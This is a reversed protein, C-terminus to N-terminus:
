LREFWPLREIPVNITITKGGRWVKGTDDRWKGKPLRVDRQDASTVVPAVLYKDGLMYQDVIGELGQGPFSYDMARVMPEGTKAMRRTESLIYDGLQSHWAAYRRCIDLHHKDLIRWPAVSFQMMPMMSHIQCSRVILKQDFKDPDIGYFTTFSGGGIMDPCTYGYGQLGAAIMGPVLQRVGLWSYDKDGLRQVLPANGELWCARMENYSFDSGLQAWLQTQAVDYSKGDYVDVEDESYYCQDGADFKFGDIGYRQQLDAFEHKLYARAEPNSLDYVHSYGNWWAVVAPEDTGKRKLFYGKKALDRGKKSDPSVFPCVWLMVKFGMDHLSDVMAKPNPFQEARFEWVGYDQQWNDDIMLVGTPFGNDVIGKAYKMVDAQNQNYVLEIWTNYTPRTFFLEPPVSGTPPFHKQMVGCYADRLTKGYTQLEFSGKDSTLNIQKGEAKMKFPGSCWLGRGKSSILLPSTQNNLNYKRQDIEAKNGGGYPMSLGLGTAAGWWREGDEINIKETTQASAVLAGFALALTLIERKM